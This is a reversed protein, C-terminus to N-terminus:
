RTMATAWWFVSRKPELAVPNTTLLGSMSSGETGSPVVGPSSAAFQVWEADSGVARQRKALDPFDRAARDAKASIQESKERGLGLSKIESVSILLRVFRDPDNDRLAAVVEATVEEASIQKWRDVVGDEDDDLGWRIGGTGLWRYEDAKGNSDKDVDRYVEVGYKFYCWLDVKKDDDTDAFRRLVAGDPDLVEWGSWGNQQIDSVTCQEAIAAPVKEFDVDPQVPKLALAATPSPPAASAVGPSSLVWAASSLALATILPATIM